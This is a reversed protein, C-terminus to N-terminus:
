VLTLVCCGEGVFTGVPSAEGEPDYWWGMATSSYNSGSSAVVTYGTPPVANVVTFSSGGAWVVAVAAVGAVVPTTVGSDVASVVGYGNVGTFTALMVNFGTTYSPNPVEDIVIPLGSGNEKGVFVVEVVNPLPSTHVSTIRPDSTTAGLILDGGGPARPGRVSIVIVDGDVTGSPLAITNKKTGPDYVGPFSYGVLSPEIPEPEEDLHPYQFSFSDGIGFYGKDPITVTHDDVTFFENTLPLGGYGRPHWFVSLSEEIPAYTLHPQQTGLSTITHRDNWEWVLVEDDATDDELDGMQATAGLPKAPPFRGGVFGVGLQKANQRNHQVLDAWDNTDRRSPPLPSTM